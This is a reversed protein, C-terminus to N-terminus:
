LRRRSRIPDRVVIAIRGTRHWSRGALICTTVENGDAISGSRVVQIAAPAPESRTPTWFMLATTRILGLVSVDDCWGQRPAAALNGGVVSGDPDGTAAVGPGPTVRMSGAVLVTVCPAIRHCDGPSRTQPSRPRTHVVSLEEPADICNAYLRRTFESEGAWAHTAV